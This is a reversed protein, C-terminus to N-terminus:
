KSENKLDEASMDDRLGMFVPQRLGGTKTKMMYRVRGVLEPLMWVTDKTSEFLPPSPNVKAYAIIEEKFKGTVVAGAKVLKGEEYRGLILEIISEKWVYGCIILDEEEYVKVKLWVSSRKGPYYLSNREKAVIGELEMKKVAAFLEKGKGEIYKSITLHKDEKLHEALLKKREILPTNILFKDKIYLLDFAVYIVPNLSMQLKIKFPDSMLSRKQLEYFDPKGNKMLLLEGDLLMKAEACKHLNTLEPYISNLLKGRKNILDTKEDLYALCRIGDFKLEYLYDPSDFVEDIEKFLMPSLNREEFSLM